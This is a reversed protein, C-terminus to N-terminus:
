AARFHRCSTAPERSWAPAALFRHIFRDFGAGLANAMVKGLSEVPCPVVLLRVVGGM